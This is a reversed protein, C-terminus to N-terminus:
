DCSSTRCRGGDWIGAVCRGAVGRDRPDRGYRQDREVPRARQHGAVADLQRRAGTQPDVNTTAMADGRYGIISPVGDWNDNVTILSPDSWAQAFPLTGPTTDASLVPPVVALTGIGVVLSVILSWARRSRM